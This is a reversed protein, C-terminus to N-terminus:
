SRCCSNELDLAARLVAVSRLWSRLETRSSMRSCRHAADRAYELFGPDPDQFRCPEMIVCALDDGHQMVIQDLAQRDNM